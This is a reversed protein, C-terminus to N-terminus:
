PEQGRLLSLDCKLAEREDELESVRAEAKRQASLADAQINGMRDILVQKLGIDAELESVKEVIAELERLESIKRYVDDGSADPELGLAVAIPAFGGQQAELEAVRARAEDREAQMRDIGRAVVQLQGDLADARRRQIELASENREAMAARMAAAKERLWTSESM